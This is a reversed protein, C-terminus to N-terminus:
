PIIIDFIRLLHIKLIDQVCPVFGTQAEYPNNVPEFCQETAEADSANCSPAFEPQWRMLM